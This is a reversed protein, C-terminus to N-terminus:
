LLLKCHRSLQKPTKLIFLKKVFQQYSKPHTFLKKHKRFCYNRRSNKLYNICHDTSANEM